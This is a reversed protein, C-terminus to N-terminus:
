RGGRPSVAAAKVASRGVADLCRKECTIRTLPAFASCSEVDCRRGDWADVRFGVDVARSAFPCWFSRAIARTGQFIRPGNFLVILLVVGVSLVVAFPWAPAALSPLEVSEISPTM